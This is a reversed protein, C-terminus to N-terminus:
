EHNEENSLSRRFYIMGRTPSPERYFCWSASHEALLNWLTMGFLGAVQDPHYPQLLHPSQSEIRTLIESGARASNITQKDLYPDLEAKFAAHLSSGQFREFQNWHERHGIANQLRGEVNYLPMSSRELSYRVVPGRISHRCVCLRERNSASLPERYVVM